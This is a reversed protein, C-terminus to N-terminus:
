QYHTGQSVAASQGIDEITTMLLVEILKEDDRDVQEVYDIIFSYLSM